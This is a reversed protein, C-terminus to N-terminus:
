EAFVDRLKIECGPLVHVPVTDDEGYGSIFYQGDKLIFVQVSTTEPDVVWYERVGAKQYLDLKTIRDHRKTSPSLVEIVLDPAGAYGHGDIKTKDCVVILDPQVVTDNRRNANLRVDLPAFYLKCSKGKLFVGIILSLERLIDQHEPSPAPSMLYAVGDILEYRKDDDWTLYDAYTYRKKSAEDM